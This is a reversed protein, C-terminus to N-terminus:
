ETGHGISVTARTHFVQSVPSISITMFSCASIVFIAIDGCVSNWDPLNKLELTRYPLYSPDIFGAKLINKFYTYM